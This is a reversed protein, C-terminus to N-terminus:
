VLFTGPFIANIENKLKKIAEIAFVKNITTVKKGAYNLSSGIHWIEADGDLCIYRDHIKISSKVNTNSHIMKVNEADQVIKRCNKTYLSLIIEPKIESLLYALEKTTWFNDIVLISKRAKKFIKKFWDQAQIQDNSGLVIQPPIEEKDFNFSTADGKIVNFKRLYNNVGDEFIIEIKYEGYNDIPWILPFCISKELNDDPQKPFDFSNLLSGDPKYFNLKKKIKASEASIWVVIYGKFLYNVHPIAIQKQPLVDLLNIRGYSGESVHECFLSFFVRM